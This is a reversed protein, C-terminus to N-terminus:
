DAYHSWMLLSDNTESFCTVGRKDLFEKGNQEISAAVANLVTERLRDAPLKQFSSLLEKPLDPSLSLKERIQELEEDTPPVVTARLACDYPDNFRRPSGFFIKQDKLNRLTQVTIPEYKYVRLPRNV